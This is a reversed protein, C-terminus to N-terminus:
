KYLYSNFRPFPLILGSLENGGFNGTLHIDKQCEFKGEITSLSHLRLINDEIDKFSIFGQPTSYLDLPDGTHRWHTELPSTTLAGAEWKKPLHNSNLESLTAPKSFLLDM